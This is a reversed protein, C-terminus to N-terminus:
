EQSVAPAAIATPDLAAKTVLVNMSDGMQSVTFATLSGSALDELLSENFRYVNYGATVLADFVTAPSLFTIAATAHVYLVYELLQGDGPDPAPFVFSQGVELWISSQNDVALLESPTTPACPVFTSMPGPPGPEGDSGSTGDAGAAGDQGDAGDTGPNGQAGQPGRLSTRYEWLPSALVAGNYTEGTRMICEYVKGADASGTRWMFDGVHVADQDFGPSTWTGPTSDTGSFTGSSSSFWRTARMELRPKWLATAQEVSDYEEGAAALCEYVRGEASMLLIDGARAHLIDYSNIGTFHGTSGGSYVGEDSVFWKTGDEGDEGKLEDKQAQTLDSFEFPDGKPGKLEAKLANKQETTLDEWSVAGDNGPDGKNGKDGKDGKDGKAGNLGNRVTIVVNSDTKEDHLTVVSAAGAADSLTSSSVYVSHGDAGDDGDAGRLEDKLAAKQQESLDGWLVPGAPGQPGQMGQPGRLAELQAATFDDYTFPDGKDGKDGDDGKVKLADLQEQTFDSFTFPDGKDGKPGQPGTAGPTGPDGKPGQVANTWNNRDTATVHAVTDAVHQQLAALVDAAQGAAFARTATVDHAM